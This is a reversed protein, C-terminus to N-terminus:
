RRTSRARAGEPVRRGVLGAALLLREGHGHGARRGDDQPLKWTFTEAVAQSRRWGTTPASAVRHEVARDDDAGQRRPVAPPLHPRRRADDYHRRAQLGAFGAIDKIEGIDQYALATASAITYEEDKSARPTSRCTTPRARRRGDGRRPALARAGRGLRDPDQARGQRQGRGRHAEGHGRARGRPTEPHIRVEISAPSSAPTTRATSSISASTPCCRAWAPAAARRAPPMHCDQCVIGRRATRARRGSSTRRSSGCAGRIRRTTAPAASSPPACSRTRARRTTRARRAPARARSSRAPRLDIWNFNFPVDGEFGTITHCVDCSVSENARSGEAPRQPPIDGALFALPAHCGNCGAKVGAVKPEKEAHPVALEFYEIEDWHHTYAQSM